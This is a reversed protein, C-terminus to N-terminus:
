TIFAKFPPHVLGLFIKRRKQSGPFNFLIDLICVIWSSFHQFYFKVHEEIMYILSQVFIILQINKRTRWIQGIKPGDSSIIKKKKVTLFTVYCMSFVFLEVQFKNFIFISM